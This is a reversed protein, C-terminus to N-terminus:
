HRIPDSARSALALIVQVTSYTPSIFEHIGNENSYAHWAQLLKYGEDAALQAKPGFGRASLSEGIVAMNVANM